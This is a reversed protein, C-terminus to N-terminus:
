CVTLLNNVSAMLCTVPLSNFITKSSKNGGLSSAGAAGCTDSVKVPFILSLVLSLVVTLLSLSISLVM